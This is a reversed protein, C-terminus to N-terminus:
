LCFLARRASFVSRGTVRGLVVSETKDDSSIDIRTRNRCSRARPAAEFQICWENHESRHNQLNTAPPPSSLFILLVRTHSSVLLITPRFSAHTFLIHCGYYDLVLFYSPFTGNPPQISPFTARVTDERHDDHSDDKEGRFDSKNSSYISRSVHIM